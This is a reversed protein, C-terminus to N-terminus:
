EGVGPRPPRAITIVFTGVAPEKRSVRQEPLGTWTLHKRSDGALYGRTVLWDVPWKLRALANDDDMANALTMEAAILAGDIPASPPAAEIVRAALMHDCLAFYAKRKKDKVRWHMRGNAMNPPLPLTLTMPYAVPAEAPKPPTVVGGRTVVTGKKMQMTFRNLSM